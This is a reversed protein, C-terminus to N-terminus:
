PTEKNVSPFFEEQRVPLPPVENPNLPRVLRPTILVVLETRQVRDARSKFLQGLVPIDGLGPVKATDDQSTNDLLGAIAFSQGNRLEVETEVRRTSLAPIRFGELTVGNAFDLSSVEPRVHLRIVDGIITPRFTLRVGFEKYVISVAANAGGQVVPVPIEGGALFSAEQGNYAILNPEALTQFFGSSKLARIVVGIDKEVSFVFLNLFDGFTLKGDEQGPATPGVTGEFGPASFQQTTSRGVFDRASPGTFFSTGFETLARRNVEAIRVELMVQQTATIGPLQLMNVLRAKPAMAQAIDIAQVMIDPNTVQGSLVIADATASARIDQNPFLTQLHQQLTSAEPTVAVEFHTRRHAGWVILSVTGAAKGDVLLERPQVVTADAIVPNTVAIRTIDFDTNLVMSRGALLSIRQPTETVVQGAALPAFGLQVCVTLLACWWGARARMLRMRTM